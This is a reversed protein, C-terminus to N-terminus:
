CDKEADVARTGLRQERREYIRGVTLRVSRIAFSATVRAQHTADRAAKAQEILVRNRRILAIAKDDM